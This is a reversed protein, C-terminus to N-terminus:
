RGSEYRTTYRQQLRAAAGRRIGPLPEVTEGDRTYLDMDKCWGRADVVFRRTWGAPLAPLAADFVADVEEGPGVIAVAADAITLLETVAGFATYLGRPYRADWLPARRAYDYTPRRQDHLERRAFGTRALSASALPL